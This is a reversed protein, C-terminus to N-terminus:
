KTGTPLSVLRKQLRCKSLFDPVLTEVLCELGQSKLDEVLRDLLHQPAIFQLTVAEDPRQYDDFGITVLRYQNLPSRRGGFEQGQSLVQYWTRLLMRVEQMSTVEVELCAKDVEM